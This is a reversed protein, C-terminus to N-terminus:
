ERLQRRGLPAMAAFLARQVSPAPRTLRFEREFETLVAASRLVAGPGGGARARYIQEFFEETRLAPRVEWRVRAPGEGAMQHPTGAPVEFSEGQRYVREVGAVVTKVAGELVEFREDQEPHLHEPPLRGGGAYSAEMELLEGGTDAATREFRLRFGDGAQIEEGARALLAALRSGDRLAPRCPLRGGVPTPDRAM